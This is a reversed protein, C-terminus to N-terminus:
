AAATDEQSLHSNLNEARERLEMILATQHQVRVTANKIRKLIGGSLDTRPIAIIAAEPSLVDALDGKLGYQEAELEQLASSLESLAEHAPSQKVNAFISAQALPASAPAPAPSADLAPRNLITDLVGKGQHTPAIPKFMSHHHTNTPCDSEPFQAHLLAFWILCAFFALNLLVLLALVLRGILDDLRHM